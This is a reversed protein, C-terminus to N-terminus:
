FAIEDDNIPHLELVDEETEEATKFKRPLAKKFKYATAAPRPQQTTVMMPQSILPVEPESLLNPMDPLKMPKIM